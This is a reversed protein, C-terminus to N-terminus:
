NWEGLLLNIQRTSLDAKENAVFTFAFNSRHHTIISISPGVFDLLSFENLM